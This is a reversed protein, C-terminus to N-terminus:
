SGHPPWNVESLLADVRAESIEVSGNIDVGVPGANRTVSFHALSSGVESLQVEKM